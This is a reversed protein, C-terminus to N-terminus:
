FKFAPIKDRSKSQKAPSVIAEVEIVEPEQNGSVSTELNDIDKDTEKYTIPLVTNSCQPLVTNSRQPLTTNSREKQPLVTNGSGEAYIANFNVTIATAADLTIWGRAALAKRANIYSAHQLGTRDLIWQESVKFGEKTGILVIMIRLQASSDKLKNFVIDMLDQPLAYFQGNGKAGNHQLTPAQKLNAM